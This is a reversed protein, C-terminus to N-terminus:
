PTDASKRSGLFGILLLAFWALSTVTHGITYSWAAGTIGQDPILVLAAGLHAAVSVIGIVGLAKLSSFKQVFPRSAHMLITLSAGIAMIGLPAIAEDFDEAYLWRLPWAAAFHILFYLCPVAAVAAVVFGAFFRPSFRDRDSSRGM